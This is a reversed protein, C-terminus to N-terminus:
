SEDEDDADDRDWYIISNGDDWGGAWPGREYDAMIQRRYAAWAEDDLGDLEDDDDLEGEDFAPLEDSRYVHYFWLPGDAESLIITWWGSWEDDGAADSARTEPAATETSGAPEWPPLWQEDFDDSDKWTM